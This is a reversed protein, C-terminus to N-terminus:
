MIYFTEKTVPEPLEEEDLLQRVNIEITRAIATVSTDSPRNRFPDQLYYATKELLFFVLSILMLLPIEYALMIGKLGISLIVVFLYITFHLFLRYTTPFVTNNIREAMGMWDSFKVCTNNLQVHTFDSLQGKDKLESIQHVNLQLIGLPKNKHKNLVTIDEPSLFADCGDLAPLGRLSQGLSYCWAIQRYAMTKVQDKNLGANLFAQLQLVFSRSDNVIAGWVKRAEWWRDYSQSMKFSLLVSIATGLFTAITLPMDPLYYYFNETLFHIAFGLILVILMEYKVLGFIYSLPLRKEVLM